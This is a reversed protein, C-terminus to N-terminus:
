CTSSSERSLAEGNRGLQAARLPRDRPTTREIAPRWRWNAEHSGHLRRRDARGLLHMSIIVFPFLYGPCGAAFSSMRSTLSISGCAADAGPWDAHENQRDVLTLARWIPGRSGGRNSASAPAALLLFLAGGVIAALVWEAGSTQMSIFRAQATLMVGFILLVLTGGVYILLQM